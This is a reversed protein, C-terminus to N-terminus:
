AKPTFRNFVDNIKMQKSKIWIKSSNAENLKWTLQVCWNQFSKLFNKSKTNKGNPREVKPTAAKNGKSLPCDVAQPRLLCVVSLVFLCKWFSKGSICQSYPYWLNNIGHFHWPLTLHLIFSWDTVGSIDFLKPEGLSEFVKSAQTQM